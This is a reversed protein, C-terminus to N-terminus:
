FNKLVHQDKERDEHVPVIGEPDKQVSHKGEGEKKSISQKKALAHIFRGDVKQPRSKSRLIGLGRM